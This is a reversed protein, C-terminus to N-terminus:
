PASRRLRWRPKFIGLAANLALVSTAVAPAIVLQSREAQSFVPPSTSTAAEAAATLRPVLLFVVVPVLAITLALKIAVWWYQLLGWHTLVGLLVGSVLSTVALPALLSRGAIAAAPYVTRPDAGNLSAIGLMLLVLDAGFVGVTSLVHVLLLLKRWAPVLQLDASGAVTTRTLARMILGCYSDNSANDLLCHHRPGGGVRGSAALRATLPADLVQEIDGGLNEGLDAELGGGGVGDGRPGAHRGARQVLEERIFVGDGLRQGGPERRAPALSLSDEPRLDLVQRQVLQDVVDDVRQHREVQGV